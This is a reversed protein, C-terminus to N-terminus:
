ISRPFPERISLLLYGPKDSETAAARMELPEAVRLRDLHQGADGKVTRPTVGLKFTFSM